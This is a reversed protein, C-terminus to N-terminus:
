AFLGHIFWRPEPTEGFHGARFLWFRRGAEDEVRYYDRPRQGPKRWWEPEIREPGEACAVRHTVRRWTFRAPPSDPALALAEIPQPPDLLQLPRLPPSAPDPEPWDAPPPGAAAPAPRAAREPLWSDIPHLRVVADPGLRATLRDILADLAEAESPRADFAGQAPPMAQVEAAELRLHDFGFGPDIPNDLAALREKFLRLTGPADRSPRATRVVVRRTAGDVRFLHLAFARGGEGRQELRAMTEALLDAIVTEVLEDGIIPELLVRDVVVPPVPRWPTIRIDELGLARDLRAPFDAGFRAALPARPRDDLDGITKLGARRLALAEGASLELAAVALRRVAARDEGVPTIGGPSFRCLARAAQPTSALALRAQLGGGEARRRAAALLGEEGGFLHACGTVDLILGHPPDLAAMPTFRGFDELARTMLAADADPSHVVVRVEPARARADALTMGPKLGLALAHPNVAALRLAGRDKEVLLVPM